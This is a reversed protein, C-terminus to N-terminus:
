TEHDPEEESPDPAVQTVWLQFVDDGVCCRLFRLRRFGAAELATTVQEPAHSYVDFDGRRIPQSRLGARSRPPQRTTLAFLGGPRIVRVAEIIVPQPDALFHLV